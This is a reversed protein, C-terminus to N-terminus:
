KFKWADNKLYKCLPLVMAKVKYFCLQFNELIQSFNIKKFIFLYIFKVNLLNKM